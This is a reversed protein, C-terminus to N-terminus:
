ATREPALLEVTPFYTGYRARDRTLLPMVSAAAHAGIFFDPLVGSRVGGRRRYTLFAKGALFLGTKPIEVLTLGFGAILDELENIDQYGMSLESYIVPNIVLSGRLSAAELMHLSWDMWIPDRTIVDLLVNSDVLTV